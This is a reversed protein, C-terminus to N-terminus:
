INDIVADFSHNKFTREFAAYDTRDGEIHHVEKLFEPRKQGRSFLWVEDGRNLLQRAIIKGFYNTGGLILIKM